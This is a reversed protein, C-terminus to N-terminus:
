ACSIFITVFYMKKAREGECVKENRDRAKLRWFFDRDSLIFADTSFPSFPESDIYVWSVRPKRAQEM